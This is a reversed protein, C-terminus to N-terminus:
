IRFVQINKTFIRKTRPIDDPRVVVNHPLDEIPYGIGLTLLLDDTQIETIQNIREVVNNKDVCICFGTKLNFSNAVLAVAGASIGIGMLGAHTYIEEKRFKGRNAFWQFLIPARLQTNTNSFHREKFPMSMVSQDYHDYGNLYVYDNYTKDSSVLLKYHEENQKTPMNVAVGILTDIISEEVPKDSWNRQCHNASKSIEVFNFM